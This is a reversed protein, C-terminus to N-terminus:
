YDEDEDEEDGYFDDEDDDIDYNDDYDDDDLEDMEDYISPKKSRRQKNLKVGPKNVSEEDQFMGSNKKPLKKGKM